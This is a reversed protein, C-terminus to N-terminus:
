ILLLRDHTFLDNLFPLADTGFFGLVGNLLDNAESGTIHLFSPSVIAAFQVPPCGRPTNGTYYGNCATVVRELQVIKFALKVFSRDSM